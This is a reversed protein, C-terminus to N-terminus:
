RHVQVWWVSATSCSLRESAPSHRVVLLRRVLVPEHVVLVAQTEVGGHPRLTTGPHPSIQAPLNLHAVPLHRVPVSVRVEIGLLCRPIRPCRLAGSPPLSRPTPRRSGGRRQVVGDEQSVMADEQSVMADERVVSAQERV